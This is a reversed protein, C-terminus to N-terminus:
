FSVMKQKKFLPTLLGFTLSFSETTNTIRSHKEINLMGLNYRIDLMIKLGNAITKETNLGLSVALDFRKIGAEEFDIPLDVTRGFDLSKFYFSSVDVALAPVVGGVVGFEYHKNKFLKLKGMLPFKLYTITNNYTRQEEQVQSSFITGESVLAVETMFNVMENVSVELPISFHYGLLDTSSIVSSPDIDFIFNAKSQNVGGKLGIYTQSFIPFSLLLGLTVVYLRYPIM